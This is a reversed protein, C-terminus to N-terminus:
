YMWIHTILPRNGICSVALKVLRGSAHAALALSYIGRGKDTNLPTTNYLSNTGSRCEEPIFEKPVGGNILILASGSDGGEVIISEIKKAEPMWAGSEAKVSCSFIIAMCVLSNVVKVM